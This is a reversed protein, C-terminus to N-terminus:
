TGTVTALVLIAFGFIGIAATFAIILLVRALKRVSRKGDSPLAIRTAKRVM